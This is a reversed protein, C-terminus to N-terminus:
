TTSLISWEALELDTEKLDSFSLNSFRSRNSNPPPGVNDVPNVLNDILRIDLKRERSNIKSNCVTTKEDVVSIETPDGDVRSPKPVVTQITTGHFGTKDKGAGVLSYSVNIDLNDFSAISFKNSCLHRQQQELDLCRRTIYRKLSDKSISAGIRANISLLLSSSDSFKDSIDTLLLHLPEVCQPNQLNFICSATFLRPFMRTNSSELYHTSWSFKGKQSKDERDTCSIRFM